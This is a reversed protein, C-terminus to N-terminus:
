AKTTEKVWEAFYPDELEFCGREGTPAVVGAEVLRNLANQVSPVTLSEQQGLFGAM